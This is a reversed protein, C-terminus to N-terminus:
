VKFRRSVSHYKTDQQKCTFRLRLWHYWKPYFAHRRRKKKSAVRYCVSCRSVRSLLNGPKLTEPTQAVFMQGVTALWFSYKNAFYHCTGRGHCEFFPNHRFTRLCSGPSSLSQGSGSGGAGTHMLFSYGTWIPQWGAPCDPVSTSQSHTAVVPGPAECVACRSIFPEVAPASIPMMPIQIDTTLWYSYDNRSAYYCQENINCFLYPMTTFRRMCSGSSGLDQGHSTDHGQVYLLSYGTWLRTLNLPCEPISTSQSHVVM